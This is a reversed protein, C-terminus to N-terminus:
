FKEVPRLYYGAEGIRNECNRCPDSHYIEFLKNNSVNRFCCSKCPDSGDTVDSYFGYMDSEEASTEKKIFEGKLNRMSIGERTLSEATRTTFGYDVKGSTISLHFEVDEDSCEAEVVERLKKIQNLIKKGM